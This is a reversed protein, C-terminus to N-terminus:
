FVPSKSGWGEAVRVKVVRSQGLGIGKVGVGGWRLCARERGHSRTVLLSQNCVLLNASRYNKVHTLLFFWTEGTVLKTM